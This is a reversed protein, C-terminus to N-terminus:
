DNTRNDTDRHGSDPRRRRHRWCETVASVARGNLQDAMAMVVVETAVAVTVVVMVEAAVTVVVMMVMAPAVVMVSVMMVVM